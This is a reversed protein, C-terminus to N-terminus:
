IILLDGEAVCFLASDRRVPESIVVTCDDEVEVEDGDGDGDGDGTLDGARARDGNVDKWSLRHTRGGRGGRWRGAGPCRRALAASAVRRGCGCRRVRGPALRPTPCAAGRGRVTVCLRGAVSSPPWSLGRTSVTTRCGDAPAARAAPPCTRCWGGVTPVRDRLLQGGSCVNIARRDGGM